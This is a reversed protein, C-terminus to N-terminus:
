CETREAEILTRLRACARQWRKKAAAPSTGLVGAAESLSFGELGVLLVVARDDDSVKGLAREIEAGENVGDPNPNGADQRRPDLPLWAFRSARKLQRRAANAAIAFLWSRAASADRLEDLHEWARLFVDQTLDEAVTPDGVMGYVYRLVGDASRDVLDRYLAHRAASDLRGSADAHGIGHADPKAATM